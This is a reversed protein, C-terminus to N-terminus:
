FLKSSDLLITVPGDNVLHVHMHARFKGTEVKLGKERLLEVFREYLAKGKDPPAAETFSPRKGRRCDGYLTFQSVVLVEGNIDKVSLNMKGDEDEFIRLGSVKDALWECDEETDDKGVGVFVLLGRKIAGVTKEEVIVKAESVRQVVARM